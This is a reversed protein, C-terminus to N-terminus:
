MCDLNLYESGDSGGRVKFETVGLSAVEEKFGWVDGFSVADDDFDLVEWVAASSPPLGMEEDSAELLYVIETASDLDSGDLIDFLDDLLMKAELSGIKPDDVRPRKQVENDSTM